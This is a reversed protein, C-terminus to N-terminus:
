KAAPKTEIPKGAAKWGNFGSKLHFIQGSRQMASIKAVAKASRNGAACHVILPRDAPLAAIQKEFDDGFFDVNKAGPIHGAAFEDPTRVDIVVPAGSKNKMLAAAEDPTVDKTASAKSAAPQKPEAAVAHSALNLFVAALLAPLIKM